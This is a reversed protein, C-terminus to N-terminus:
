VKGDSHSVSLVCLYKLRGFSRCDLLFCFCCLCLLASALLAGALLLLGLLFLRYLVSAM